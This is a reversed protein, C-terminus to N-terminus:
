PRVLTLSDLAFYLQISYQQLVAEWYARPVKASKIVNADNSATIRNRRYMRGKSKNTFVKWNANSHIALGIEKGIEDVQKMVHDYITLNMRLSAGYDFTLESIKADILTDINDESLHNNMRQLEDWDTAVVSTKNHFVRPVGRTPGPMCKALTEGWIQQFVQLAQKHAAIMTEGPWSDLFYLVRGRVDYIILFWHDGPSKKSTACQGGFVGFETDKNEFKRFVSSFETEKLNMPVGKATELEKLYVEPLRFIM